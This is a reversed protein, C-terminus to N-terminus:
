LRAAFRGLLPLPWARGLLVSVLGTVSLMLCAIISVQFFFTGMVPLLLTYLAVMEWIWLVVGQRAHFQIYSGRRSILLPVLSLVGLYSMMALLRGALRSERWITMRAM